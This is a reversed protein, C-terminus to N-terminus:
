ITLIRYRSEVFRRGLSQDELEGTTVYFKCKIFRGGEIPIQVKHLLTFIRSQIVNINITGLAPEDYVRIYIENQLLNEEVNVIPGDALMIAPMKTETSILGMPFISKRNPLLDRLVPDEIFIDKIAAKADTM